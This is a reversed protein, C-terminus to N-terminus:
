RQALTRDVVPRVTDGVAIERDASLVFAVASEADVTVVVLTAVPTDPTRVDVRRERDNLIAGSSYVELETGIELGHFEGRNLYVYEGDAALTRDSPLFVVQGDVADPTSRLAVRRPLKERVMVRTGRRIEAYSQRIEAISTDGTLEKVELWGLNEVHSGLIRNTEVDRVDDIVTFIMFQDGVETDGEGLGIFVEDGEALFTRVSPSEVISSAGSLAEASVFGYSDRRAITIMRGSPMAPATEEPVEVPFADLTSAEDVAPDTAAVPAFEDGPEPVFDADEVIPPAEDADAVPTELFSQAEADTVVRMENATIWIKDGPLILHPNAIDDNDIWVSPWVWPTGLYAASLDWLTDGKAVTHLRGQRGQDDYGIPGLVVGEVTTETAETGPDLVVGPAAEESPAVDTVAAEVLGETGAVPMTADVAETIAPAAPEAAPDFSPDDFQDWALEDGESSAAGPETATEAVADEAPTVPVDVAAEALAEGAFILATLSVSFLLSKRM